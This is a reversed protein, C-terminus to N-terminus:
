RRSALPSRAGRAAPLLHRPCSLIGRGEAQKGSMGGAGLLGLLSLGDLNIHSLLTLPIKGPHFFGFWFLFVVFGFGFYLVAGQMELVSSCICGQFRSRFLQSSASRQAVGFHLVVRDAGKTRAFPGACTVFTPLLESGTIRRPLWRM